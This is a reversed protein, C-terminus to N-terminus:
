NPTAPPHFDYVADRLADAFPGLAGQLATNTLVVVSLKASPDVWFHSGYGGVWRWTGPAWPLTPDTARLVAFGFGWGWGPGFAIPLDATQNETASAASTPSIIGAGGTRLAEVFTLYDGATSVMGVGGSPYSARHFIRSPAYVIADAAFPLSQPDTMRAARPEADIYPVALAAPEGADFSASIHLPETVLRRVVEPLSGGGAKAVIAGLVDIGLSYRWTKGPTSLLPARALRDLNEELSLGPQDFGSSVNLRHYPGGAPEGWPYDLGSTHTLLQRVTIPPRHGDTLSPQFSPLWKSIPQDLNLARQEALILAALSVIPKSMSALRFRTRETVPVNAERDALGAARHYVVQGDRAVLVVAGVIREASIAADLVPDLRAALAPDPAV